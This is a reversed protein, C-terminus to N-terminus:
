ATSGRWTIEAGCWTPDAMIETFLLDGPVLAGADIV